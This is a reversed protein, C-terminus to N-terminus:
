EFGYPSFRGHLFLEVHASGRTVTGDPGTTTVSALYEPSHANKLRTGNYLEHDYPQQSFDFEDWEQHLRGGDPYTGIGGGDKWSGAGYGITVPNWACPGTEYVQTWKDGRDDRLHWTGRQLRRTGGVFELEHRAEVLRRQPSGDRMDIGGELPTGFVDNMQVQEGDESEHVSFFGSHGPSGWWCAWRMAQRIRPVEPTPLWRSDPMLPARQSYLGWSHDRSAWWERERLEFRRDRLQIWGHATGSQNYRTQDTTRRGRSWAEHHPEQYVDSLGTWTVDFTLDSDNPEMTLRIVRLPEVFRYALPGVSTDFRERWPRKLRTTFQKGAINIGAYSGITDTNPSVRMGSYFFADEQANYVGFFYGDDWAYDTVPIESFPRSYQHVPFEDYQTIM